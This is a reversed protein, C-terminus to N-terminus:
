KTKNVKFFITVTDGEAGGGLAERGGVWRFRIPMYDIIMLTSTAVQLWGCVCM